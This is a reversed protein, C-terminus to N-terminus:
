CQVGGVLGCRGPAFRRGGFTGVDQQFNGIANFGVELFQGYRFGPVVAFRHALGQIGVDRQGGIVETIEGTTDPGLFPVHAFDVVIGNGVM